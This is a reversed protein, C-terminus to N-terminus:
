TVSPRATRGQDLRPVLSISHYNDLIKKASEDWLTVNVKLLADFIWFPLYVGEISANVVRNDGGFLNTIRENFGTLKERVESMAQDEGIVFPVLGDPETITELADQLMVHMSGCFPCTAALKRAPLTRAAGCQGCRLMRAGIKWRLPKARRELMAMSLNDARDQLASINQLEAQYGCFKCLVIGAADDVTLTGGCVPCLLSETTAEVPNDVLKPAIQSELQTTSLQEPLLRGNLVMIMRLAELHGPDNALIEGLHNRKTPEDEALKALWLHADAFNRQMELAKELQRKAEVTDQRWLSDQAMEFLTRARPEIEGQHTIAVHPRPSRGKALLRAQAQELSEYSKEVRNGCNRCRYLAATSDYAMESGCNPCALKEM